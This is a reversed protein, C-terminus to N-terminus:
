EDDGHEMNWVKMIKILTSLFSDVETLDNQALLMCLMSGCVTHLQIYLDNNRFFFM